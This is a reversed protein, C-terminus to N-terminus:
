SVESEKKMSKAAATNRKRGKARQARSARSPPAPSIGNAKLLQASIEDLRDLLRKEMHRVALMLTDIDNCSPAQAENRLRGLLENTLTRYTVANDMWQRLCELFQPSRMFEDWSKTLSQFVGARVERLIEPSASDPSFKFAAQFSQTVGDLCMKQFAATDQAVKDFSTENM